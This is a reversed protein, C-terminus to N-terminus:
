RVTQRHAEVVAVHLHGLAVLAVQAVLSAPDM